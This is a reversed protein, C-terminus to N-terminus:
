RLWPAGNTTSEKEMSRSGFEQNRQRHDEGVVADRDFTVALLTEM